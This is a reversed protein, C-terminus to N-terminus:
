DMGLNWYQINQCNMFLIMLPLKPVMKEGVKERTFTQTQSDFLDNGPTKNTSGFNRNFSSTQTPGHFNPTNNAFFPPPSPNLNRKFEKM